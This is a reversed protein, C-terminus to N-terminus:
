LLFTEPIIDPAENPSYKGPIVKERQSYNKVYFSDQHPIGALTHGHAHGIGM